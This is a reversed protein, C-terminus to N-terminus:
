LTQADAVVIKDVNCKENVVQTCKKRWRATAMQLARERSLTHKAMKGGKKGMMSATWRKAM